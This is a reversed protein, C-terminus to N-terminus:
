FTQAFPTMAIGGVRRASVRVGPAPTYLDNRWLEVAYAWREGVGYVRDYRTAVSDYSSFAVNNYTSTFRGDATQVQLDGHVTGDSTAGFDLKFFGSNDATVRLPSVPLALGSTRTFTILAGAAPGDNGRFKAIAGYDMRGGVSFPGTPVPLQWINSLPIIFGTIQSPRALSPHSVTLTGIVNGVQDVGDIFMTFIGGGNTTTAGPPAAITAGGVPTFTVTAGAVPADHRVLTGQYRAFPYSNWRGLEQAEGARTQPQVAINKVTYPTHSPASVKVDVTAVGATAPFSLEWRGNAETVSQVDGVRVTVGKIPAGSVPEVIQGALAITPATTCTVAGSCPECGQLTGVMAFLLVTLAARTAPTARARGVARRETAAPAVQVSRALVAVTGWLLWMVQMVFPLLLSNTFLSHVLLAFTSATAGAALGRWEASPAHRWVRRCAKLAAGIIGLYMVLGVVGTLTTVFLLGGDLGKDAGGIERWGYASQAASLANFGVGFWPHDGIMVVARSWPVLRQAASGDFQLKNFTAAYSALVSALPVLAVGGLILLGLLKHSRRQILLLVMVGIAAALLSSRSLTLILAAGLVVVRVYSRTEREVQRALELLLAITVLIGAFNPDLATSVLRRGQLDWQVDSGGWPILQAFGPLFASQVIGFGAFLLLGRELTSIAALSGKEDLCVTVIWYWGAYLVWRGLFASAQVLEGGGLQWLQRANVLSILAAGIFAAVWGTVRDLPWPRLRRVSVAVLTLWLPILALDALVFPSARGGLAGVPLRGVNGAILGVVGVLVLTQPSVRLTPVNRLM